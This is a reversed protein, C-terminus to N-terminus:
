FGRNKLDAVLQVYFERVDFGPINERTSDVVDSHSIGRSNQTSLFTYKEGWRFSEEGVLGDNAGDFSKILQSCFNLPFAGDIIGNLKSGVSQCFVDRPFPTRADFDSCFRATLNRVAGMFDPAYDGLKMSTQNYTSAIKLQTEGPIKTLLYDAFQCGRHPTNITTLSAVRAAVEPDTLAARCDLGGKSHAIINVKECGTERCIELIRRGLEQSSGIVSDASQHNGYFVTAGNRELEGPIRGWYNMFGADRFFVGHVLLLPYRTRCIAQDKRSLNLAHKETEFDVEETATRLISGVAFLKALPIKGLLMFSARGGLGLQLSTFFISIMGNWYLLSEALIFVLLSLLWQTSVTPIMRFTALHYLLGVLTSTRLARLCISGHNCVRIRINPFKRGSLLPLLNAIILIIVAPLILDRNRNLFSFSNATLSVLAATLWCLKRDQYKKKKKM